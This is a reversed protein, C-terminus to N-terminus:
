KTRWLLHSNVSSELAGLVPQNCGCPINGLIYTCTIYGTAFVEESRLAENNNVFEFM